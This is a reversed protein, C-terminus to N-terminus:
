RFSIQVINSPKGAVTLQVDVVGRGLYQRPVPINVQDLGTYQGQAGAYEATLHEGNFNVGVSSTGPNHRIGTGFLILYTRDQEGGLDIPKPVCSGAAV